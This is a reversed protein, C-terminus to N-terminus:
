QWKNDADDGGWILTALYPNDIFPNRNGQAGQIVTNRQIEFDSVPDAINWELFLELTGVKEFTEGYRVNLYMVMRAVDGRWDDGPYWSNNNILQYTGSGAVFPYNSRLSNVADDASRLHHLDTVAGDSELRSQPYIHETNFTQPTHPNNGSTYEREDRSEGSYMLIVNATNSADEDADYLYNHRQGYSLITTHKAITHEKLQDYNISGDTTFALNEYYTSLEAPVNFAFRELVSITVTATVCSPNEDDDCLTYTFTDDGVFDTQPTYTISKDANLTVTGTTSANDIATLVADDTLTDNDLLNNITITNNEVSNIADNSAMPEGEDTITITVTATSCDPTTDSDCLTYSFSDEGVFSPPPNYSYTGNRNDVISGNKTSTNDISTIRAGTIVTDNSLLDSLILETDEIGTAIDNVAIPKENVPPQVIPGDGGSDGGCALVLASIVILYLIKKM